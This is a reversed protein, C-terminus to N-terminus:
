GKGKGKQKGSGSKNLTKPQSAPAAPSASLPVVPGAVELPSSHIVKTEYREVAGEKLWRSAWPEPVDVIRGPNLQGLSGHRVTKKISVIM